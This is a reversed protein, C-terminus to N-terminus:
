STAASRRRMSQRGRWRSEVRAICARIRNKVRAVDMEGVPAGPGSLGASPLTRAGQLGESPGGGVRLQDALGVRGASRGEARPEGCRRWLWRRPMRRCCRTCGSRCRGRRWACTARSRSRGCPRSEPDAARGRDPVAREDGGGAHRDAQREREGGCAHLKVCPRGSRYVQGHANEQQLRFEGSGHLELKDREEPSRWGSAPGLRGM